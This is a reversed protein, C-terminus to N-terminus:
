RYVALGLRKVVLTKSVGTGAWHVVASRDTPLRWNTTPYPVGSSTPDLVKAGYGTTTWGDWMVGDVIPDAWSAIVGARGALPGAEVGIGEYADHAWSQRFYGSGGQYRYITGDEGGGNALKLKNGDAFDTHCLGIQFWHAFSDMGSFDTIQAVLVHTDTDSVQPDVTALAQFLTMAGGQMDFVLGTGPAITVDSTGALTVNVESEWAWGGADVFEGDDKLSHPDGTELSFDNLYLWSWSPTHPAPAGGDYDCDGSPNFTNTTPGPM